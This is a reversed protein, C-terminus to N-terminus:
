KDNEVNTIANPNHHLEQDTDYFLHPKADKNKAFMSPLEQFLQIYRSPRLRIDEIKDLVDDEGLPNIMYKNLNKLEDPVIPHVSEIQKKLSLYKSKYKIRDSEEGDLARRVGGAEKFIQLNRKVFKNEDLLSNLDLKAKEIQSTYERLQSRLNNFYASHEWPTHGFIQASNEFKQLGDIADAVSWNGKYLAPLLHRILEEVHSPGLQYEHILNIIRICTAYQFVDSGGKGVNLILARMLAYNPDQTKAENIITSVATKSVGVLKAIVGLSLPKISRLYLAWIRQKIDEPIPRTVLIRYYRRSIFGFVLQLM